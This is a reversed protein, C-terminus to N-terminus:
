RLLVAYLAVCAGILPAIHAGTCCARNFVSYGATDVAGDIQTGLTFSM